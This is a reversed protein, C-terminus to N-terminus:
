KNGNANEKARLAQEPNDGDYISNRGLQGVYHAWPIDKIVRVIYIDFHGEVVAVLWTKEHVSTVSVIWGQPSSHEGPIRSFGGLVQVVGEFCARRIATGPAHDTIFEILQTRTEIYAM